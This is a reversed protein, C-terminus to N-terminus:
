FKYSVATRLGLNLQSATSLFAPGSVSQSLAIFSPYVVSPTAAIYEVTGSIRVSWPTTSGFLVGAEGGARWTTRTLSGGAVAVNTPPPFFTGTYTQMSAFSASLFDLSVSANGFLSILPTVPMSGGLTAGIRWYNGRMNTTLTMSRPDSGVELIQDRHSLNQYGVFLGPTLTFGGMDYTRRVGLDLGLRHQTRTLDNSRSGFLGVVAGGTIGPRIIGDIFPTMATNSRLGDWQDTGFYSGKAYIETAQAFGGLRYAVTLDVGAGFAFRRDPTYSGRDAGGQVPFASMNRGFKMPPLQTAYATTGGEIIWNSPDPRVLPAVESAQAASSAAIAALVAVIHRM